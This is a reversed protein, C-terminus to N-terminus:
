RGDILEAGISTLSPIGSDTDIKVWGHKAVATRVANPLHPWLGPDERVSILAVLQAEPMAGCKGREPQDARTTLPNAAKDPGPAPTTSDPPEPVPDVQAVPSQPVPESIPQVTSPIDYPPPDPQAYPRPTPKPERIPPPIQFIPVTMKALEPNAVKTALLSKVQQDWYHLRAGSRLDARLRALDRVFRPSVDPLYGRQEIFVRLVANADELKMHFGRLMSCELVLHLSYVFLDRPTDPIYRPNIGRSKLAAWHPRLTPPIAKDDTYDNNSTWILSFHTRFESEPIADDRLAM